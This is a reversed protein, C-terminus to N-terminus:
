AVHEGRTAFADAGRDLTLGGVQQSGVLGGLTAAAEFLVVGAGARAHTRAATLGAMGGGIVAVDYHAPNVTRTGLRGTPHARGPRHGTPRRPRPQTRPRPRRPGGRARRRRPIAARALRRRAPRPRYEGAAACRAPDSGGPGTPHALRRRRRRRGGRAHGGPP